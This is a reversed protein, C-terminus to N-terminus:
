PHAVRPCTEGHRFFEVGPGVTSTRPLGGENTILPAGGAVEDLHERIRGEDIKVVPGLPPRAEGGPGVAADMTPAM